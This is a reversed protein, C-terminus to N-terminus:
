REHCPKGPNKIEGTMYCISAMGTYSLQHCLDGGAAGYLQGNRWDRPLLPPLIRRKLGSSGLVLSM